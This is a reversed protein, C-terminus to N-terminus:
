KYCLLISSGVGFLIQWSYQNFVELGRGIQEWDVWDPIQEREKWLTGLVQDTKSRDEIAKYLDHHRCYAGHKEKAPGELVNLREIIKSGLSDYQSLMARTEDYGLHKSTWTFEYDFIRTVTNQKPTHISM